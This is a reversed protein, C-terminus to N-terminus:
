GKWDYLLCWGAMPFLLFARRKAIEANQIAIEANQKAIEALRKAKITEEHALVLAEITDSM